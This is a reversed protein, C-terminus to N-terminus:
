KTRAQKEEYDNYEDVFSNAIDIIKEESKDIFYEGNHIMEFTKKRLKYPFTFPYVVMLAPPFSVMAIVPDQNVIGMGIAASVGIGMVLLACLRSKKLQNKEYDTEMDDVIIKKAEEYNQTKELM